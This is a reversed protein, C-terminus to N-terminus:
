GVPYGAITGLPDLWDDQFAPGVPSAGLPFIGPGFPAPINVFQTEGWTGPFRLWRPANDQIREIATTGPGLIRGRALFFDFGVGQLIPRLSAPYCSLPLPHLGPAFLNAHSGTAVYVVPHTGGQKQVNAWSRKEGTCHQSYAAQQPQREEDLVVTVVEWDGEHAQWAYGSPPYQLSWFNHNYFYWYQLVITGARVDHRGYVTSPGHEAARYCSVAALGGAPSCGRLDLRWGEGHVPLGAAPLEAPVFSGNEALKLDADALFDDVSTPTFPETADLVTVPQYLALLETPSLSDDAAAPAVFAAAAAVLTLAALTIPRTRM